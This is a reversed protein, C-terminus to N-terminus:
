ARCVTTPRVGSWPPIVCTIHECSLHTGVCYMSFTYSRKLTFVFVNMVYLSAFDLATIPTYYAGKEANLVTAGKYGVDDGETKNRDPAIFPVMFGLERAKKSVLSFVKIQQGREALYNIPVWAAKAMEVMNLFTCLKDILRHPLLTDKM